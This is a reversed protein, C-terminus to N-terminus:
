EVEASNGLLLRANNEGPYPGQKIELILTEELFEIGHGHKQLTVVDGANMRLSRIIQETNEDYIKLLLSGQLVHVAQHMSSILQEKYHRKHPGVKQGIQRRLIGVQLSDQPDTLFEVDKIRSVDRAIIAVIEGNHVIREIM